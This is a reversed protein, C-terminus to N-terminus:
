AKEISCTHHKYDPEDSPIDKDYNICVLLINGKYHELVQPYNRARIQDLATKVSKNYKLEVLLAPKDPYKPSPLYVIDAYGKGTDLEQITTYYRQAAYYALQIAYSLANESNYTTNEARDHAKELLEAVRQENCAWTAEILENSIKLSRFVPSWDATKTSAKFEDLIERNPIFVEKRQDDYGLYGLHVLLTLVDDRGNFTTMDNQYTSTDIRVRGGEIMFVISDKLGDINMDIYDALASYTETRNWYNQIHGTIMAKVVSLPSYLQYRKALPAENANQKVYGPDPPIIDSVIYGDYWEKIDEFSRGYKYCLDTVEETTFGTFKALQMPSLMSFEDFMNLASHIGYKKIPLIGTMYALAAYERDKLWDRLFDLYQKHGEKDNKRVRFVCDWEDIIIVFKRKTNYYVDSLSMVLDDPEFFDVNPYETKIDRLILKKLRDLSSGVETEPKFFDTMIVRIVDFRNLHGDWGDLKSLRTKEFLKRSDDRGYYACLMDTAMSKGFRRPRSVSLYRQNTNVLSNTFVIMETKDVFIESNMAIEYRDYGPNLYMGM